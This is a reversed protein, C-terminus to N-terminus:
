DHNIESSSESLARGSSYRDVNDGADSSVVGATVGTMGGRNGSDSESWDVRGKDRSILRDTVRKDKRYLM